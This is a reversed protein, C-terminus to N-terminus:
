RPALDRMPDTLNNAGEDDLDVTEFSESKRLSACAEPMKFAYNARASLSLQVPHRGSNQDIISIIISDILRILSDVQHEPLRLHAIDARLERLEDNTLPKM